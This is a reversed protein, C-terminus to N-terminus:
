EGGTKDEREEEKERGEGKVKGKGRTSGNEEKGECGEEGERSGERHGKGNKDRWGEGEGETRNGVGEMHNIGKGQERRRKMGMVVDSEKRM